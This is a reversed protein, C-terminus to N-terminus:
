PSPGVILFVAILTWSVAGAAYCHRKISRHVTILMQLFLIDRLAAMRLSQFRRRAGRRWLEGDAGSERGKSFEKYPRSYHKQKECWADM